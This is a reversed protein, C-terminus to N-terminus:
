RKEKMFFQSVKSRVLNREKKSFSLFISSFVFIIVGSIVTYIFRYEIDTSNKFFLIWVISIITPLTIPIIVEKFFEFSSNKVLQKFIRYRIFGTIIDVIIYSLMIYVIDLEFYLLIYATPVIFLKLFGAVLMYRKINGIAHIGIDIGTTIQNLLLSLILGSCIVVSYKPVEGLWFQLFGHMEFLVPISIFALLLYSFKCLVLLMSIMEARNGAGENKIIQPRFTNFITRSFFNVQNSLQKSIGYASNAVTGLFLNLVVGVGQSRVLFSITGILNWRAFSFMEKFMFRDKFKNLYLKSESYNLKCFVSKIIRSLIILCMNLLGYTFLKDESYYTIFLAIGLTVLTEFVGVLALFKMDEHAKILADYPAANISFFTSIIVFQFILKAVDIRDTPINLFGDFLFLGIIELFLVLCIGIIFHFFVTTHFISSLKNLQGKGLFISIYRQTASSMAVNLFILMTIVGGILSYIGYDEVGMAKLILRTSYMTIFVTLISKGYLFITNTFIKKYSM